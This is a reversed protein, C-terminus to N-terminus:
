TPSVVQVSPTTKTASGIVFDASGVLLDVFDQILQDTDVEEDYGFSLTATLTGSSVITAHNMTVQYTRNGTDLAPTEYAM